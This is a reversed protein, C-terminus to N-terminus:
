SAPWPGPSGTRVHRRAADPATRRGLQDMFDTTASPELTWYARIVKEITREREAESLGLPRASWPGPSLEGGDPRRLMWAIEDWWATACGDIFGTCLFMAARVRNARLVPEVVAHLDSYGDDFTLMVRRGPSALLEPTVAAPDVVEFWRRILKLQTDFEDSTAGWLPRYLESDSGDGIRHYSLVVLGRWCPLRRLLAGLGSVRLGLALLERKSRRAPRRDGGVSGEVM